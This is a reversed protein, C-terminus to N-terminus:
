KMAERLPGGDMTAVGFIGVGMRAKFRPGLTAGSKPASKSHANCTM